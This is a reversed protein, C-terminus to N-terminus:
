GPTPVSTHPSYLEPTVVMSTSHPIHRDTRVPSWVFISIGVASVIRHPLPTNRKHLSHIGYPRQQRAACWLACAQSLGEPLQPTPASSVLFAVTGRPYAPPPPAFERPVLAFVQLVLQSFHLITGSYFPQSHHREHTVELVSNISIWRVSVRRPVLIIEPLFM